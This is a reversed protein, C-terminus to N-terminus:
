LDTIYLDSIVADIRLAYQKKHMSAQKKNLSIHKQVFLCIM